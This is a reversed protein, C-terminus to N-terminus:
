PAIGDEWNHTEKLKKSNDVLQNLTQEMAWQKHHAGDITLGKILYGIANEWCEESLNNNKNLEM